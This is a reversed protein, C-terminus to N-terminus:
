CDISRLMGQLGEGHGLGIDHGAIMDNMLSQYAALPCRSVPKSMSVAVLLFVRILM